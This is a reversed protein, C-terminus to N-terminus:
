RVHRPVRWENCMGKCMGKCVGDCIGKCGGDRWPM